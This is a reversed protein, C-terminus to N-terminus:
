FLSRLILSGGIGNWSDTTAPKSVMTIYTLAPMLEMDVGMDLRLGAEMLFFSFTDGETWGILDNGMRQRERALYTLSFNPHVASQIEVIGQLTMTNGGTINETTNAGLERKGDFAYQYNFIGGVNLNNVQAIYGLTGVASAQAPAVNDNKSKELPLAFGFGFYLSGTSMDSRGLYGLDLTTPGSQRSTSEFGIGADLTHGDAFGYGVNASIITDNMSESFGEGKGSAFVTGLSWRMDVQGEGPMLTQSTEVKAYATSVLLGICLMVVATKKM